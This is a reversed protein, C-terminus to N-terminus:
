TLMGAIASRLGHLGTLFQVLMVGLDSPLTALINSLMGQGHPTQIETAIINAMKAMLLSMAVILANMKDDGKQAKVM